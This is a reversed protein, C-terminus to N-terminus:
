FLIELEPYVVCHNGKNLLNKSEEEWEGDKLYKKGFVESFKKMEKLGQILLLVKTNM